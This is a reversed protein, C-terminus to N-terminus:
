DASAGSRQVLARWREVEQVVYPQFVASRSGVPEAGLELLRTQVAPDAVASAVASSLKDLVAVPTAAPAFWGFWSKADMQAFGSEAFTPVQPLERSRMNGTLAVARLKGAQVHALVEPLNAFMAQVQGGILDTQAPAGGKYAV